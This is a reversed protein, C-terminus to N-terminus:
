QKGAAHVPCTLWGCARHRWLPKMVPSCVSSLQTAQHLHPTHMIGHFRLISRIRLTPPGVQSQLAPLAAALCLRRGPQM